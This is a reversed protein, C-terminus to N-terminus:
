LKQAPAQIGPLIPTDGSFWPAQKEIGDLLEDAQKTRRLEYGRRNALSTHRTALGRKFLKESYGTAGAACVGMLKALRSPNCPMAYLAIVDRLSLKRQNISLLLGLQQTM